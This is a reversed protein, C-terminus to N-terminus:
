SPLLDSFVFGDRAVTEGQVVPISHRLMPGGTVFTHFEGNEGCPDVDRPLEDLFTPDFRRGAFTPSLKRPDVCVVRAELGVRIMERALAATDRGWLPFQPRVGTAALRSERYSRVDQLFLDGFIVASIGEGEMSEVAEAMAKEYVPNPCPFPLEVKRLPLGAAVAQQDLLSERVGHISVRGFEKTITTLLGVVEFEAGLAIEWLAFASDKGSSWSVVAKPRGSRM